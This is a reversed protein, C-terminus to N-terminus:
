EGEKASSAELLLAPLRNALDKAEKAYVKIRGGGFLRAFFGTKVTTMGFMLNPMSPSYVSLAIAARKFFILRRKWKFAVTLGKIDNLNVEDRELWKKGQSIAVLRKNTLILGHEAVKFFFFRKKVGYTWSAVQKEDANLQIDM